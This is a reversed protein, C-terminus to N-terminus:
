RYDRRKLRVIECGAPPSKLFRALLKYTELEFPARTPSEDFEQLEAESHATGLHRWRDLVHLECRGSDADRERVAIPGEYPWPRLRLRSLAQALRMAHSIASEQGVCAGRCQQEAHASCPGGEANHEIGLVRRCLGHSKAIERLAVLASSRSRFVGYLDTSDSDVESASVLQPPELHAEASWRWSCPADGQTRNYRPALTALLRAEEFSAGLAGTTETWEVRTVEEHIHVDRGARVGGPFHALVRSRINASRGVYLVAGDAGHFVYVGPTEPLTDFADAPLGPPVAPQRLLDACTTDLLEPGHENRWIQALEWLVRADGLGRHRDLCFLAHRMILADLNHRRHHPALRRSLKVTCLVPARYNVGARRFENRLFGYDFRANHAVLVKDGLRAALAESIAGFDPADAVMEDTIGTLTQIGQPIRRGPNVLTSWEGVLRGRDVEILGIDVIRDNLASGGTTELDLFVLHENFM